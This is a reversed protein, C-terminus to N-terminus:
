DHNMLAAQISMPINVDHAKAWRNFEATMYWDGNCKLFYEEAIRIITDENNPQTQMYMALQIRLTDRRTELGTQELKALSAAISEMTAKAHNEHAELAAKQRAESRAVLFGILLILIALLAVGITTKKADWNLIGVLFGGATGAFAIVGLTYTKISKIDDLVSM